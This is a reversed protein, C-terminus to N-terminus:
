GYGNQSLGNQSLAHQSSRPEDEASEGTCGPPTDKQKLTYALGNACERCAMAGGYLLLFLFSWRHGQLSHIYWLKLPFTLGWHSLGGSALFHVEQPESLACHQEGM